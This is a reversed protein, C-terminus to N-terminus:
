GDNELLFKIRMVLDIVHGTKFVSDADSNNQYQLYQWYLAARLQNIDDPFGKPRSHVKALRVGIEELRGASGAYNLGDFLQAFQLYDQESHCSEPICSIDIQYRCDSYAMAKALSYLLSHKALSYYQKRGLKISRPQDASWAPYVYLSVDDIHKQDHYLMWDLEEHLIRLSSQVSRNIKSDFVMTEQDLQNAVREVLDPPYNMKILANIFIEQFLHKLNAFDAKKLGTLLVAFRTEDHCFLVCQKRQILYIHAHWDGWPSSQEVGNNLDIQPLKEALKKTVHVRM